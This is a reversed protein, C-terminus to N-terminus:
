ETLYDMIAKFVLDATMHDTPLWSMCLRDDSAKEWAKVITAEAAEYGHVDLIERIRSVDEKMEDTLVTLYEPDKKLFLKKKM